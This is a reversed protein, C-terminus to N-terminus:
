ASTRRRRHLGRVPEDHGHAGAHRDDRRGLPRAARDAPGRRTGLLEGDPANARLEIGGGAQSSAVRFRLADIGTLNVPEYVAPRRRRPRDPGPRRRRRRREVAAVTTAQLNEAHEAEKHKPQLVLLDSGTLAPAGPAGTDTYDAKLTFFVKMDESHGGGLDTVM